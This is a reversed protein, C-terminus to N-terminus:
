CLWMSEAGYMVWCRAGGPAAMTARALRRALTTAEADLSPYRMSAITRHVHQSFRSCCQQMISQVSQIRQHHVSLPRFTWPFLNGRPPWPHPFFTAHWMERHLLPPIQAGRPPYRSTDRVPFEGNGVRLAQETLGVLLFISPPQLPIIGCRNHHPILGKWKEGIREVYPNFSFPGLTTDVRNSLFNTDKQCSVRDRDRDFM